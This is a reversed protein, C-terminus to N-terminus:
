KSIQFPQGLFSISKYNSLLSLILVTLKCKSSSIFSLRLFGHLVRYFSGHNELSCQNKSFKWAEGKTRRIFPIHLLVHTHPMVPIISVPSLWIERLSVKGLAVKCVLFRVHGSRADFGLRRTSIGAVLRM